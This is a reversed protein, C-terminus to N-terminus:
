IRIVIRPNVAKLAPAAGATFHSRELHMFARHQSIRWLGWFMKRGSQGAFDFWIRVM